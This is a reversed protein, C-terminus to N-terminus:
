SPSSFATLFRDRFADMPWVPADAAPRLGDQWGWDGIQKMVKPDHAIISIPVNRNAGEGSVITAPQHDGLMVLVLNPDHFTQVYSLLATLSYQVSQGYNARVQNPDRWVQAASPQGAPMEHFVSGDGVANWDVMSPLPAWPTHSSVLDIEAMVPRHGPQSLEARQFASLVYQDPMAAYSFKPGAYGVNRGDYVQDYHYFSSGEPWDRDNSPDDAVTRWGARKFAASLTFRDSSVLDNYRQQSNIWLGSQLTSHALWSIGGFTPSTLWGSQAAYGAARLQKTGNDLVADVGPSFATGQVAVQGYSEVFAVIVDKGQLGNLLTVSPTDKFADVKAERAFQQKDRVSDRVQVLQGYAVNAASTSAIPSGPVLQTGLLGFAAWLVGFALMVKSARRRHRQVLGTITLLSLPMLAVAAVALLGLGIVAAIAATRGVSDTLLGLASGFYSWDTVPNFRRDLAQRFGIDLLEVVTLVGFGVGAAVALWRGPRRPLVVILGLFLVGEIPIRLLATPSLQSLRDPAMLAFWVLLVALGTLAASGPHSARSLWWIDRGFSEALLALAGFLLLATWSHPLLGSAAIALTIGQIAAVVKRWYRPPVPTRLRPIVWGAVGLAYRALGIALVWWGVSPAIFVSLVLILFADSEMDFRAGLETASGSRRAVWGDVADLLLAIVTLTLLVPLHAGPAAPGDVALAAVGVAISARTLTVRHAPELGTGGYYHLGWNLVSLMVAGCGLGVLWGVLGLGITASLVALLILQGAVGVRPGLEVARQVRKVDTAPTTMTAPVDNLVLRSRM